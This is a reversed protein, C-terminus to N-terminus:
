SNPYIIGKHVVPVVDYQNVQLCDTIDSFKDIEKLRNAARSQKLLFFSSEKMAQASKTLLLSADDLTAGYQTALISAFCGAAVSDELSFSGRTGSCFIVIDKQFEAAIRACASLNVFAGILLHEAPASLVIAQTGNHTRMVIWRDQIFPTRFERPSNGLDFGDPPLGNEEGAIIVDTGKYALAEEVRRVPIIGLAGYAMATVICTTARIIDLVIVTKGHLLETYDQKEPYFIISVRM